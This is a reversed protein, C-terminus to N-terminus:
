YNVTCARNILLCATVTASELFSRLSSSIIRVVCEGSIEPMLLELLPSSELTRVLSHRRCFELWSDLEGAPTRAHCRASMVAPSCPPTWSSQLCEGGLLAVKPGAM